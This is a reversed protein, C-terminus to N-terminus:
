RAAFGLRQDRDGEAGLVIRLADFQQFRPSALLRKM